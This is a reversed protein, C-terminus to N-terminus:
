AAIPSLECAPLPQFPPKARAITVHAVADHPFSFGLVEYAARVRAALARFAGGPARAGIYVVRAKREHPFAGLKDLRLAFPATAAAVGDLALAADEVRPPEVFGLFALT